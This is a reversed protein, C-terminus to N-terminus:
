SILNLNETIRMRNKLGEIFSAVARQRKENLIAGQLVKATQQDGSANKGKLATLEAPISAMEAPSLEVPDEILRRMKEVLLEHREMSEYDAPTIRNLRLTRLYVRRSFVNGARFAPDSMIADSLETNTVTLGADRAAKYLIADSVMQGLVRMKLDQKMKDDFKDGYADRLTDEAREYVRWYQQMTIKTGGVTAVIAQDDKGSGNKGIGWFIFSVIVVLFLIYFYKAHKRMSKLM